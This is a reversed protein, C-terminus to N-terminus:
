QNEPDPAAEQLKALAERARAIQPRADDTGAVDLTNQYATIADQSQDLAAYAEALHYQVIPDDPLGTAASELYPLATETDGRRFALWGYTDQFAPVDTDRLRRAIEWARDLSETDDKYTVLLSALNNAFIVSGTDRAYLTDYIAIAADIDGATEHEAAKAWLLAPADPVAALAEDLLAGAAEADGQVQAIRILQQWISVRTPDEDLLARMEARATELDGTAARTTALLFRLESREPFEAALEEAMNLAEDRQGSSLRARLLNIKEELGAEAGQAMEELYSLAKDTGEQRALLQVQLRNAAAQSSQSGAKRLETVAMEARGFDETTLYIDGLLTLIDENTPARRLASLLVEEASDYSESALLMQAYRLSPEPANGSVDAAQALFDRALDSSGARTYANAMLSLAQVDDASTNLVRRLNAIAGDTDDAAIQRAARMKLASVNDSDAELVEDVLRQAGVDNGTSVLMRALAIRVENNVDSPETTDEVSDLIAQLDAIAKDQKGDEFDLAARLIRLRNPESNVDIAADLEAQAAEIGREDKLFQVLSIFFVPDADAPNSIDRLFAEAGENDGTAMLYQVLTGKADVDDPFREIVNRLHAEMEARDGTQRLLMLRQNYYRRTEPKRAIMADLQALAKETDAARLYSDFLIQELLGNEPMQAALDEARTFLAEAAPADDELVAARYQLALEIAKSRPADPALEVARTGHRTFEEWNRAEFALEAMVTRGEVDDPLQEVLRLYQNYAGPINGTDVMLRAMTRRAEEHNPALEFVNRLAVIARDPDNAAILEQATEFHAQAKEEESKCATLALCVGCILLAKRLPRIYM